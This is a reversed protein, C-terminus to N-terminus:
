CLLHKTECDRGKGRSDVLHPNLIKYNIDWLADAKAEFIAREAYPRSDDRALDEYKRVQNELYIMVKNEM